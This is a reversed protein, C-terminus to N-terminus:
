SVQSAIAAAQQEQLKRLFDPQPWRVSHPLALRGDAEARETGPDALLVTNQPFGLAAPPRVQRQYLEMAPAVMLPNLLEHRHHTHCTQQWRREM